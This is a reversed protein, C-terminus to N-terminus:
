SGSEWATPTESGGPLVSHAPLIVQKRNATEEGQEESKLRTKLDKIGSRERERRKETEKEGVCM